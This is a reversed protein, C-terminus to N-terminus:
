KIEEEDTQEGREDIPDPDDPTIPNRLELPYDPEEFDSDNNNTINAELKTEEYPNLMGVATDSRSHASERPRVVEDNNMSKPPTPARPPTQPSQQSTMKPTDCLKVGSGEIEM